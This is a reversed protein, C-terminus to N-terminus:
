HQEDGDKDGERMTEQCISLTNIAMVTVLTAILAEWGGGGGRSKIDEPLQDVSVGVPLCM